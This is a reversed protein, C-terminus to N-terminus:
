KSCYNCICGLQTRKIFIGDRYIDFDSENAEKVVSDNIQLGEFEKYFSLTNQFFYKNEDVRIYQNIYFLLTNQFFLKKKDSGFYYYINVGKYDLTDYYIDTVKNSIKSKYFFKNELCDGNEGFILYLFWMISLIIGLYKRFQESKIKM